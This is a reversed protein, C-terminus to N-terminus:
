ERSQLESTHEESRDVDVDVNADVNADVATPERFVRSRIEKIRAKTQEAETM